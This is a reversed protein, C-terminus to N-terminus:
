GLTPTFSPPTFDALPNEDCARDPAHTVVPLRQAKVRSHDQSAKPPQAQPRRAALLTEGHGLACEPDPGDLPLGTFFKAAMCGGRCSDYFTCSGCLGASQPKRLDQFLESERWVGAFGGPSRVNGALFADHIAFPCAYVDGVPDILCVVRGAGCLNLGPLAEGFASLHFFSDGTLVNEGHSMLWHYLERQQDATPHLDDWVDAGRGSPRLRTLRLQADYREAIAKFDDLQSVNERTVVVSIKFNSMGAAALNEMAGVATVYSGAGRVKDNIEPTAGDLSIQVDVYDNAALRTAIEPTIRSGNTSFKVGVHHATAYDLLDWFDKRITPEGGGINVYFVQMRELEDIIARAEETSLENPDRRGSSSLCHVCALNCAYTLEWTLCIPADLGEEFHDILTRARPAPNLTLTSV